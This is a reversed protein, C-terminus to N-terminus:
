ARVIALMVRRNMARGRKDANSAIPSKEGYWAVTLLKESVGRKKLYDSVSRARDRSLYFNNGLRGSSDTYGAIKVQKVTKDAELYEAVRDLYRKAQSSLTARSVTFRLNKRAISEFSFPLLSLECSVYDQYATQFNETSLQVKIQDRRKAKYRLTLNRGESLTSLMRHTLGPGVRIPHRARKMHVRGLVQTARYPKWLPSVSMITALRGLSEQQSTELEFAVRKAHQHYFRAQGYNQVTQALECHLRDGTMMWASEGIPTVFRQTKAGSAQAIFLCGLMIIAPTTVKM